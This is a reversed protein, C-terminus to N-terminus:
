KIDFVTKARTKQLWRAIKCKTQVKFKGSFTIDEKIKFFTLFGSESNNFFKSNDFEEFRKTMELNTFLSNPEEPFGRVVHRCQQGKDHIKTAMVELRWNFYVGTDVGCCNGTV